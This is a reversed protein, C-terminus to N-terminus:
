SRDSRYTAARDILKKQYEFGSGELPQGFTRHPTTRLPTTALVSFSPSTELESGDVLTLIPTGSQIQADLSSSAGTGGRLNEFRQIMGKVEDVRRTDKMWKPRRNSWGLCQIRSRICPLCASPKHQGIDCEKGRLRCTWCGGRKSGGFVSGSEDDDLPYFEDDSIDFPEPWNFKETSSDEADESELYGVQNEDVIIGADVHALVRIMPTQRIGHQMELWFADDHSAIAIRACSEKLIHELIIDLTDRLKKPSPFHEVEVDTDNDLSLTSSDSPPFDEEHDMDRPQAMATIKLPLFRRYKVKYYKVFLCQDRKAHMGADASAGAALKPGSRQTVSMEASTSHEVGFEAGAVGGSASFSIAHSSGHNSIAALAWESTKLWGTVLVIDEPAIERGQAVAFAHWFAHFLRVYERIRANSQVHSMTVDAGPVLIAGAQNRCEFTYSVSIGKSATAGVNAKFQSISKSYIPKPPLYNERTQVFARTNLKLPVYGDPVGFEANVPDSAELTCNFLRYFCGDEIFGVDGILVEGYQSPEPQWLPEGHGHCRLQEAYTLAAESHFM